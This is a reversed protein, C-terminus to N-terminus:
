ISANTIRKPFGGCILKQTPSPNNRNSIAAPNVSQDITTYRFAAQGCKCLLWSLFYYKQILPNVSHDSHISHRGDIRRPFLETPLARGQWPRPRSNSDRKGSWIKRATDVARKCLPQTASHNHVPNCIRSRRNSESRLRWLQFGLHKIGQTKKQLEREMRAKKPLAPSEDPDAEFFYGSCKM